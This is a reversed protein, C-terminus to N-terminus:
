ESPLTQTSTSSNQDANHDEIIQTVQKVLNRSPLSIVMFFIFFPIIGGAVLSFEGILVTAIVSFVGFIVVLLGLRALISPMFGFLYCRNQGKRQKLTVKCGSWTNKKISLRNNKTTVKFTDSLKSRVLEDLKDITLEKPLTISAM